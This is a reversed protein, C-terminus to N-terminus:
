KNVKKSIERLKNWSDIDQQHRQAIYARLHKITGELENIKWQQSLVGKKFAHGYGYWGLCMCGIALVIEIIVETTIGM